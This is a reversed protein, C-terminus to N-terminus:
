TAAVALWALFGIAVVIPSLGSVALVGVALLRRGYAGAIAGVAALVTGVLACGIGAMDFMQELGSGVPDPYKKAHPIDAYAALGVAVWIGAMAIGVCIAGWSRRHLAATRGAPWDPSRPYPTLGATLSSM